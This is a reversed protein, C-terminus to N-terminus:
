DLLRVPIHRGNYEVIMNNGRNNQQELWTAWRCNEPCYNGNVNKRDLTHGSSPKKGMDELFCEFSKWRECVTVGRGGYYVFRKDKPNCCRGRMGAWAEYESTNSAGHTRTNQTRAERQLCGCSRTNGDRLSHSDMIIESGCDCRCKWVVLGASSRGADSIAVLRGFRQGELNIKLSM